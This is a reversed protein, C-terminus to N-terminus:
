LDEMKHPLYFFSLFVSLAIILALSLGMLIEIYKPFIEPLAKKPLLLEEKAYKRTTRWKFILLISIIAWITFGLISTTLSM